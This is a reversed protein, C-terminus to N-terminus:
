PRRPSGPKCTQGFGFRSGPRLIWSSLSRLPPFSGYPWFPASRWSWSAKIRSSLSTRLIRTSATSRSSEGCRLYTPQYQGTGCTFSAARNNSSKHRHILHVFSFTLLFSICVDPQPILIGKGAAFLRCLPCAWWRWWHHSHRSSSSRHDCSSQWGLRSCVCAGSVSAESSAGFLM